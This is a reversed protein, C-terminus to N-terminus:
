YEEDNSVDIVTHGRKNMADIVLKEGRKGIALDDQFNEQYWM